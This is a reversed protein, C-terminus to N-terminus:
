FARICQKRQKASFKTSARFQFHFMMRDCIMGAEWMMETAMKNSMWAIQHQKTHWSLSKCVSIHSTIIKLLAIKPLLSFLTRIMCVSEQWKYSQHNPKANDAALERFSLCQACMSNETLNDTRITMHRVAWSSKLSICYVKQNSVCM